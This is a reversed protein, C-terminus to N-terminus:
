KNYKNINESMNTTMHTDWKLLMQDMSGGKPM